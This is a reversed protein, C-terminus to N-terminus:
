NTEHKSPEQAFEFALMKDVVSFVDGVHTWGLTTTAYSPDGYIVPAGHRAALAPDTTTITMPLELKMLVYNVIDELAVPKGTAIIYDHAEPQQLSQWMAVVFQSADGFDRLNKTNGLIIQEAAGAKISVARHVLQKMFSVNDRLPSEHPFLMGNVAYLGSNQRYSEVILHSAAKSSGYPNEPKLPSTETFPQGDGSGFIESSSAHFFQTSSDTAVIAELLNITPQINSTLTEDLNTFSRAVSSQAALHYIETPEISRVLAEVAAADELDITHLTLRGTIKLYNHRWAPEKATRTTGHVKYGRELLLSALYSGDQGTIGTILAVKKPNM